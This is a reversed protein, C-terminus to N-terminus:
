EDPDDEAEREGEQPDYTGSRREMDALRRRDMREEDEIYTREDENLEYPMTMEGKTAAVGTSPLAPLFQAPCSSWRYEAVREGTAPYEHGKGNGDKASLVGRRADQAQKQGFSPPPTM